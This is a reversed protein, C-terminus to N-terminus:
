DARLKKSFLIKITLITGLYKFVEVSGYSSNDTKISQRREANRDRTMVIYKAKDANVELGTEKNAVVLTEAKKKITYVSGRMINVDDAYVSIEYTGDLKL